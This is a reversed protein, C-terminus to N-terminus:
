RGMVAFAYTTTSTFTHGALLVVSPWGRQGVHHPADPYHQTELTFGDTQRYTHGSPGILDGVLFNGSYFQVGPQDTYERLVIGDARDEAVADLRYGSGNLVWNFDYGHTITLQPLPEGGHDPLYADRLRLGIPTLRRFDFPTGAVSAFRGNPILDTNVPQYRDANIELLQSEVSGSGEGALNFYTHNTLNIVTAPGDAPATNKAAYEIRLANASTLVYTVTATVPAPFHADGDPSDYTLRLAVFHRSREISPTWVKTNWGLFGGHLTNGNNNDDLTYTVGNNSCQTCRMTFSHDAIRNAYRGIIAGFYTDGSGGALPWPRGTAGQTFDNVYDALTPFGLAVDRARGARDPVWISQVVGGYTSIKVTMRRGSRLTYLYVTRGDAHGWIVRTYSPAANRTSARAAGGSSVAAIAGAALALTGIVALHRSPRPIASM